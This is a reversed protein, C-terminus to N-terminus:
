YTTNDAFYKKASKSEGMAKPDWDPSDPTPQYPDHTLMMAYYLLFPRDKKRKLYDLAYDNVLDPGYAGNKYDMEKGNIELGPNAYRPPRRTHQWLCYEDFGFTAPLNLDKGLQWK